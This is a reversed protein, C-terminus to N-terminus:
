GELFDASKDITATILLKVNEAVIIDGDEDVKVNEKNKMKKFQDTAIAFADSESYPKGTKPNKKGKLQKWIRKQLRDLEAPMKSNILFNIIYYIIKKM